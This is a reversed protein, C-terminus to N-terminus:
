YNQPSHMIDMFVWALRQSSPCKKHTDFGALCKFKGNHSWNELHLFKSGVQDRETEWFWSFRVKKLPIFCIEQSWGLAQSGSSLPSFPSVVHRWSGTVPGRCVTCWLPARHTSSCPHTHPDSYDKESTATKDLRMVLPLGSRLTQWWM